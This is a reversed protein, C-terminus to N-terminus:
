WGDVMIQFLIGARQAPLEAKRKPRSRKRM